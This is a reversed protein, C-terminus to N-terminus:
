VLPKSQRSASVGINSYANDDTYNNVNFRDSNSRVYVRNRNATVLKSTKM